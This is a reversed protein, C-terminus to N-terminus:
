RSLFRNLSEMFPKKQRRSIPFTRRGVTVNDGSVATIHRMGIITSKGIKVFSDKPLKEEASRLTDWSEIMGNKTEYLLLHDEVSVYEIESQPIRRIGDPTRIDIVRESQQRRAAIKKLMASFRPYPVPKLIYDVADVEYGRIAYQAMNTIFVLAVARDKERLKSAADTGLLYPMEVDMFVADYVPRYSDLFEVADSFAAATCSVGEEQEFRGLYSNLLERSAAEDEVIAIHLM